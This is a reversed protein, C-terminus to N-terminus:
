SKQETEYKPKPSLAGPGGYKGTKELQDIMDGALRANVVVLDFGSIYSAMNSNLFVMPEGMEEPTAYRGNVTWYDIRDKGGIDIFNALIPTATSGPSLVNIRLGKRALEEAKTMVYATTCQKSPGYGRPVIFEPHAELWAKAEEFSRTDLMPKIKAFNEKWGLGAVSSIFSIASGENMRPIMSEILHRHGIFNVMFVDFEPFPKGPLGACCFLSDVKGPVQALGADISDKDRLDVHIYKKIGEAPVDKWDLAYVEAGLEVLVKTAALGMGSAAGDVIVRKGAYGFFDKM